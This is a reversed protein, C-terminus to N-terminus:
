DTVEDLLLNIADSKSIKENFNIQHYKQLNEIKQINEFNIYLSMRKKQEQENKNKYEQQRENNSKKTKFENIKKSKRYVKNQKIKQVQKKSKQNPRM